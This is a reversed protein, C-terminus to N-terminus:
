KSLYNGGLSLRSIDGLVYRTDELFKSWTEGGHFTHTTAGNTWKELPFIRSRPIGYNYMLKGTIFKLADMSLKNNTRSNVVRYVMVTHDNVEYDDVVDMVYHPNCFMFVTPLTNGYKRTEAEVLFHGCKENPNGWKWLVAESCEKVYNKELNTGVIEGITISNIFSLPRKQRHEFDYQRHGMIQPIYTGFPLTTSYAM